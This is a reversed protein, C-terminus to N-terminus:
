LSCFPCVGKYTISKVSQKKNKILHFVSPRSIGLLEKPNHHLMFYIFTNEKCFIHVKNDRNSLSKQYLTSKKDKLGKRSPIFYKDPNNKMDQSRNKRRKESHSVGKLKNKIQQKTKESLKAGLRPANAHFNYVQNVFLPNSVVKFVKQYYLETYEADLRDNCVALIKKNTPKFSKDTASGMYSDQEIDGKCSRVGIYYRQSDSTM